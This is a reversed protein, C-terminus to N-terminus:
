SQRPHKGKLRRRQEEELEGMREIMWEGPSGGHGEDDSRSRSEDWRKGLSKLETAIEADTMYETKAENAVM